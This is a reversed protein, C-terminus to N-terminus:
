VVTLTIVTYYGHLSISPFSYGTTPTEHQLCKIFMKFSLDYVQVYRLIYCAPQIFSFSTSFGSVKCYTLLIDVIHSM